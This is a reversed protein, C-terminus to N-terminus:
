QRVLDNVRNLVQSGVVPLANNSDEGISLGPLKFAPGIWRGGVDKGFTHTTNTKTKKADTERERESWKLKKKKERTTYSTPKVQFKIILCGIRIHGFPIDFHKRHTHASAHIQEQNKKREKQLNRTTLTMQILDSHPCKPISNFFTCSDLYKSIQSVICTECSWCHSETENLVWFVHGWVNTVKWVNLM